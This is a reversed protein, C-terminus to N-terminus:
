FFRHNVMNQTLLYVLVTLVIASVFKIIGGWPMGQEDPNETNSQAEM